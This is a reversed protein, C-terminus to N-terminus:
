CIQQEQTHPMPQVPEGCLHAMRGERNGVIEFHLRGLVTIRSISRNSQGLGLAPGLCLLLACTQHGEYPLSIRITPSFQVTIQAHDSYYKRNPNFSSTCFPNRCGDRQNTETRINNVSARNLSDVQECFTKIEIRSQRAASYDHAYMLFYSFFCTNPKSIHNLISIFVSQQSSPCSSCPTPSSCGSQFLSAPHIDCCM